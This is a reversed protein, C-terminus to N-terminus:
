HRWVDSFFVVDDDRADQPPPLKVGFIGTGCRYYGVGDIRVTVWGNGRREVRGSRNILPGTSVIVRKGFWQDMSIM